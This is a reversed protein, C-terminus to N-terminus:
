LGPYKLSAFTLGVFAARRLFFTFSYFEIYRTAGFISIPELGDYLVGYKARTSPRDLIHRNKRMYLFFVIYLGYLSALIFSAM